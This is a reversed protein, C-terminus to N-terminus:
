YRGLGQTDSFGPMGQQPDGAQRSADEGTGDTPDVVM